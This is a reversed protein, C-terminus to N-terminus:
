TCYSKKLTLPNGFEFEVPKCQGYYCEKCEGCPTGNPMYLKTTTTQGKDNKSKCTYSCASFGILTGHSSTCIQTIYDGLRGSCKDADDKPKHAAHLYGSAALIVVSLPLIGMRIM